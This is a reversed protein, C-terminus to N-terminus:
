LSAIMSNKRYRITAMSHFFTTNEDGLRVWRATCRKRWFDQKCLLLQQLKNKVINRFNWESVHLARQEEYGDLLLIVDNCNDILGQLVSFSMSWKKFGKRLLKLKASLCKASDGPCQIDWISQVKDLFGPLRTWYNEFRFVKAKPIMTGVSVVCPVHDSTPKALPHVVTNPYKLTWSHSTFFWDLQVLLPNTQMNSWTFSRGKIPLEILGLYSIIENFTAIDTM